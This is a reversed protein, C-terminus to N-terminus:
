YPPNCRMPCRPEGIKKPSFFLLKLLRSFTAFRYYCISGDSCRSRITERRSLLQFILFNQDGYLILETVCYTYCITEYHLLSHKIKVILFLTFYFDVESCLIETDTFSTLVNTTRICFACLIELALFTFANLYRNLPQIPPNVITLSFPSLLFHSCLM